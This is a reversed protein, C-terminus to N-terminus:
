DKPGLESLRIFGSSQATQEEDAITLV